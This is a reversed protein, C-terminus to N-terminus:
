DSSAKADRALRDMQEKLELRMVPVERPADIGIRVSGPGISVVTVFVNEGILIREGEKRTLVLM